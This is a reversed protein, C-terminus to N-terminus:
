LILNPGDVHFDYRFLELSPPHSHSSAILYNLVLAFVVFQFAFKIGNGSHYPGYEMSHSKSLKM